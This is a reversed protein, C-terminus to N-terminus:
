SIKSKIKELFPIMQMRDVFFFHRGKYSFTIVNMNVFDPSETKYTKGFMVKNDIDKKIRDVDKWDCFIIIPADTEQFCNELGAIILEEM